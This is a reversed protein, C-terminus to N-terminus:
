SALVSIESPTAATIPGSRHRLEKLKALVINAADDLEYEWIELLEIGLSAYLARKLVDRERKWIQVEYLGEDPATPLPHWWDGQVEVVLNILDAHFDAVCNIGDLTGAPAYFPVQRLYHVGMLDLTAAIIPELSSVASHDAALRRVAAISQKAKTKASHKRGTRSAAIKARTEKSLKRGKASTSMKALTQASLNEKSAVARMKAITEPSAKRGTRATSIKARAEPTTGAQGRCGNSCFNRERLEVNKRLLAMGHEPNACSTWTRALPRNLCRSKGHWEAELRNLEGIDPTPVSLLLELVNTPIYSKM